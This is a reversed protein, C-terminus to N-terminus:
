RAEEGPRAAPIPEPGRALMRETFDLREELELVRAHADELEAVRVELDELRALEEERPAPSPLARLARQRRWAYLATGAALVSLVIVEENGANSLVGAMLGTVVVHVTLDIPDLGFIRKWWNM